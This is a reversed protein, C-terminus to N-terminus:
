WAQELIAELDDVTPDFGPPCRDMLRDEHTLAAVAGLGDASVGDLDRLRAPLGLADRIEVVREVVAEAPDDSDPWDVLAKALLNRRGDVRDFLFRLVHPVMVAHAVGQQVGFRRRLGHGLAHVISARMGRLQVLITGVVVREMATPDDDRLHPLGAAYYELGRVCVADSVPNPRSYLGEIGKDFGNMASGVLPGTPTTEFLDPDFFLADPLLLRHSVVTGRREGDMPVMIGGSTSLEAGSLTTPVPVHPVLADSDRPPAILGNEEVEGRVDDLPRFDAHLARMLTAVDHSSGGGVSVIADIDHDRLRAVGAYATEIEKNPTTEDFVDVLRDGLAAEIPDMLDRNAGVNSGCVLLARDADLAALADPLDSVCGRGYRITAPAFEHVFPATPLPM